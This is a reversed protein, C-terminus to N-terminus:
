VLLLLPAKMSAWPRVGRQMWVDDVEQEITLTRGVVWSKELAIVAARRTPLGPLLTNRMSSDYTAARALGEQGFQPADVAGVKAEAQVWV